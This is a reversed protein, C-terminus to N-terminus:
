ASQAMRERGMAKLEDEGGVIFIRPSALVRSLFHDNNALRKRFEDPNILFPNIERGIEETLGGLRLTLAKFKLSGIVFLDVDSIAKEKGEAVSGYVFALKIEPDSLRRKLIDTLGNTKLVLTRLTSYLPHCSNASYYLRNGARRVAIIDMIQLKRLEDRVTRVSLGARRMIERLHLERSELGFLIRLVEARTRSSLLEALVSMM